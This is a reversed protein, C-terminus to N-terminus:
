VPSRNRDLHHIILVKGKLCSKGPTPGGPALADQQPLIKRLSVAHQAEM